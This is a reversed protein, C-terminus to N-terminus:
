RGRSPILKRGMGLDVIESRLVVKVLNKAFGEVEFTGTEGRLLAGEGRFEAKPFITKQISRGDRYTFEAIVGVSRLSLDPIDDGRNTVTGRLIVVDGEREEEVQVPLSPNEVVTVRYAIWRQYVLFLVVLALLIPGAAKVWKGHREWLVAPVPWGAQFHPPRQPREEPLVPQQCHPCVSVRVPIQITCHPCAIHDENDPLLPPTEPM